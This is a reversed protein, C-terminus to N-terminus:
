INLQLYKYEDENEIKVLYYKQSKKNKRYKVVIESYVLTWGEYDKFIHEKVNAPLTMKYKERTSSLEGNQDFVAKIKGSDSVFEYKNHNSNKDFTKTKAIDFQSVKNQLSTVGEPLYLSRVKRLYKHHINLDTSEEFNSHSTTTNGDTHYALEQAHTLGVISMLLLGILINKM